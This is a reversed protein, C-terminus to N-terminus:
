KGKAKSVVKTYAAQVAAHADQIKPTFGLDSEIQQIYSTVAQGFKQEGPISLGFQATVANVAIQAMKGIVDPAATFIEDEIKTVIPAIKSWAATAATELAGVFTSFWDTQGSM